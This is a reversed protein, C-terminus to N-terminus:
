QRSAYIFIVAGIAVLLLLGGSGSSVAATGPLGPITGTPATGTGVYTLSSGAASTNEIVTGGPAVLTPLIPTLVSAADNLGATLATSWDGLGNLGGRGAPPLFIM